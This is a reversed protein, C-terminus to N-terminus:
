CLALAPMSCDACRGPEPGFWDHNWRYSLVALPRFSKHSSSRHTGVILACRAPHGLRGCGAYPSTIDQGWFDHRWLEAFSVQSSDVDANDRVAARDDWVFGYDRTRVFCATAVLAVVVPGAWPLSCAVRAPFLAYHYAKDGPMIGCGRLRELPWANTRLGRNRSAGLRVASHCCGVGHLLM